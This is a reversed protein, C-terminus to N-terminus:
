RGSSFQVDGARHSYAAASIARRVSTRFAARTPRGFAVAPKSCSRKDFFTARATKADSANDDEAYAVSSISMTRTAAPVVASM